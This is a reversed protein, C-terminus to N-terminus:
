QGGSQRLAGPPIGQAISIGSALLAGGIVKCGEEPLGVVVIIGSEADRIRLQKGGDPMPDSVGIQAEQFHLEIM